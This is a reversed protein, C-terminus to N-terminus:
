EDPEKATVTAGNLTCSPLALDILQKATFKPTKLTMPDEGPYAEARMSTRTKGPNFLNAKINTKKIEESYTGVMMELAAKSVAYVGWYARYTHAAASTLFIARGAESECLLPALSRILRWNATVNVAMVQDWIQPDVHNIPGMTGLLGANAVLIDLHGFREFLAAGMQDIKEFDTLDLPTLTATGGAAKIEDDVEELGGQTRAVLVVHAGEAAFCKAAERGLGRSAGTILAIKGALLDGPM